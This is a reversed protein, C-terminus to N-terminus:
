KALNLWDQRQSNVVLLLMLFKENGIDFVNKRLIREIRNKLLLFDRTMLDVNWGRLEDFKSFCCNLNPMVAISKTVVVFQRPM